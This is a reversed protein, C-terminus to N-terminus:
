GVIKAICIADNRLSREGLHPPLLTRPLRLTVHLPRECSVSLGAHGRQNPTPQEWSVVPDRWTLDQPSAVRAM